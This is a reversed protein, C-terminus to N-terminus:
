RWALVCLKVVGNDYPCPHQTGAKSELVMWGPGFPQLRRDREADTLESLQQQAAAGEQWQQALSAVNAAVGGDKSFDPIASREALARFTQADEGDHNVYRADLAFLADTATHGRAWLFARAWPNVVSRGPLELHLSAPFTARQVVFMLLALVGIATFPVLRAMVESRFLRKSVLAAAGGLLLAMLAYIILFTRLPQLRAVPHARFHERVFLASVLIAICGAAAISRILTKATSSLYTDAAKLLMLLVAIPGVIGMLEFWQWQSLFWYYRSVIAAVSATSEPRAISQLVAAGACCILALALWGALRARLTSARAVVLVVVFGAAHVAMLPQFLAAGLLPMCVGVLKRYKRLAADPEVAFSIALLSLPTSISRSTVYPEMLYLATGAVPLTFWASLLSVACWAAPRDDFCEGAIRWGAYLLTWTCVLHIAFLAVALPLHTHRTLAAVVPTFGSYAQYAVVFAADHPFLQPHLAHKVAALYIGGDEAYPHYGHVLVTAATLLLLFIHDSTRPSSSSKLAAM